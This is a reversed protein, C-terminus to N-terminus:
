IACECICAKNKIKGKFPKAKNPNAGKKLCKCICYNDDTLKAKLKKPQPKEPEMFDPIEDDFTFDLDENTQAICHPSLLISLM